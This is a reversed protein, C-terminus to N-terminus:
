LIEKKFEKLLLKNFLYYDNEFNPYEKEFDKIEYYSVGQIFNTFALQTKKNFYLQSEWYYKDLAKRKRFVEQHFGETYSKRDIFIKIEVLESHLEIIKKAKLEYFYKNRLERNRIKYDFITKLVYGILGIIVAIQSWYKIFFDM